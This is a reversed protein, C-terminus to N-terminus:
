GHAIKVAPILVRRHVHCGCCRVSFEFAAAAIKMQMLVDHNELGVIVLLERRWLVVRNKSTNNGDGKTEGNSMCKYTRSDRGPTPLMTSPM